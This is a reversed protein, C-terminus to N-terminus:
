FEVGYSPSLEQMFTDSQFAYIEGVFVVGGNYNNWWNYIRNFLQKNSSQYYEYYFLNRSDDGAIVVDYDQLVAVTADNPHIVEAQFSFYTNDNLQGRLAIPGQHKQFSAILPSFPKSFAFPVEPLHYIIAVKVPEAQTENPPCLAVPKNPVIRLTLM